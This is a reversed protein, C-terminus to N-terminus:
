GQLLTLAITTSQSAQKLLTSSAQQLIQNKTLDATEKAIDTDRIISNASSLNEKRVEIRTISAQLRNITSGYLSRRSSIDNIATDLVDLTYRAQQATSITASKLNAVQDKSASDTGLTSTSIKLFSSTVSIRSNTTNDTGVQLVMDTISGDLLNMDSFKSSEAIRDVEALREKFEAQIMARESSSYVGNASQVALDRMRQLNDQLVGLDGEATQLMSVGTQTNLKAIDSANINAKMKESIALGAADDGATNIRLGSSLKQMNKQLSTSAYFLQRQVMLSSMNTNVVISMVLIETEKRLQVEM